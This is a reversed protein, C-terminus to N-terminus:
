GASILGSDVTSFFSSNSFRIMCYDYWIRADTSLSCNPYSDPDSFISKTANAVCESCLQTPVDGGCWFMGYVTSDSHNRSTVTTNYFQRSSTANSSLYSLLRRLNLQYPSNPTTISSSCDPFSYGRGHQAKTTVFNIFSLLTFIYVLKLSAMSKLKIQKNIKPLLLM